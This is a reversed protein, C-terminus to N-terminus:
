KLVPLTQRFGVTGGVNLQSVRGALFRGVETFAASSASDPHSIVAPTGVDGGVRVAPDIPVAGLFPVDLEKAVREGGGEDFIMSVEACHPCAFGSMNEIVGLLPVKVKKFMQAGRRVDILSIEQPTTM